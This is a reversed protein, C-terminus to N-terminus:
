VPSVKRGNSSIRLSWSFYRQRHGHLRVVIVRFAIVDLVPNLFQSGKIVRLDYELWPLHRVLLFCLEAQCAYLPHLLRQLPNFKVHSSVSPSPPSTTTFSALSPTASASTSSRVTSLVSPPSPVLQSSLTPLTSHISGSLCIPIQVLPPPVTCVVMILKTQFKCKTKTTEAM